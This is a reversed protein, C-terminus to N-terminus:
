LSMAALLEGRMFPSVGLGIGTSTLSTHQALHATPPITSHLTNQTFHATPPTHSAKLTCIHAPHTICSHTVHQACRSHTIMLSMSHVAHTPPMNHMAHTPLISHVAHTSLINHTFQLNCTTCLTTFQMSHMTHHIAHQARRPSNCATCPTTFQMSHMALLPCLSFDFHHRSLRVDHLCVPSLTPRHCLCTQIHSSM